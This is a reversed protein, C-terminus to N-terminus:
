LLCLPACTVYLYVRLLFKYVATKDHLCESTWRPSGQTWCRWRRGLFVCLFLISILLLSLTVCHCINQTTSDWITMGERRGRRSARTTGNSWQRGLPLYLTSSHPNLFIKKVKCGSGFIIISHSTHTANQILSKVWGTDKTVLCVLFAMLDVTVRLSVCLCTHNSYWTMAWKDLTKWQLFFLYITEFM